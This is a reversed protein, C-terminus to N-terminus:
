NISTPESRIPFGNDSLVQKINELSTRKEDYYVTVERDNFDTRANFIGDIDEM